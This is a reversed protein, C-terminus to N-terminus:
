QLLLYSSYGSRFASFSISPKDHAKSIEFDVGVGGGRTVFKRWCAWVEYDLIISNGPSQANLYILRYPGNMNLGDCKM